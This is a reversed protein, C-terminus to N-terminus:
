VPEEDIISCIHKLQDDTLPRNDLFFRSCRAYDRYRSVTAAWADRSTYLTARQARDTAHKWTDLRHKTVTSMTLMGFVPVVEFYTRGVKNVIVDGAEGRLWKSRFLVDGVVLKDGPRKEVKTDEGAM